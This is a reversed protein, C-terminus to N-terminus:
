EEITPLIGLKNIIAAYLDDKNKIVTRMKPRGELTMEIEVSKGGVFVVYKSIDLDNEADFITKVVLEITTFVQAYYGNRNFVQIICEM